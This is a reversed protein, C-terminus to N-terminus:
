PDVPETVVVVKPPLVYVAVVAAVPMQRWASGGVAAVLAGCVMPNLFPLTFGCKRPYQCLECGDGSLSVENPFRTCSAAVRVPTSKPSPSRSEKM